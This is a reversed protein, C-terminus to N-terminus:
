FTLLFGQRSKIEDKPGSGTFQMSTGFSLEFANLPATVYHWGPHQDGWAFLVVIKATGGPVSFGWHCVFLWSLELITSQIYNNLYKKMDEIKGRNEYGRRLCPDCFNPGAPLPKARSTETDSQISM